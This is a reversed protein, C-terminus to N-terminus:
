AYETKRVSIKDPGKTMGEDEEKKAREFLSGSLVAAGSGWGLGAWLGLGARSVTWLGSWALNGSQKLCEKEEGYNQRCEPRRTPQKETRHEKEPARWSKVM